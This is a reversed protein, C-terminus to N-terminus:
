RASQDKQVSIVVDIGEELGQALKKSVEIFTMPRIQIEEDEMKRSLRKEVAKRFGDPKEANIYFAIAKLIFKADGGSIDYSATFNEEQESCLKLHNTVMKAYEQETFKIGM